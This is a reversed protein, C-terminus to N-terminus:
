SSFAHWGKKKKVKGNDCGAKAKRAQNTFDETGERPVHVPLSAFDSLLNVVQARLSVTKIKM